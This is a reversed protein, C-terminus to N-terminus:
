NASSVQQLREIEDHNAPPAQFMRYDGLEHETTVIDKISDPLEDFTELRSGVLHMVAGTADMTFPPAAGQRVFSLHAPHCGSTDVSFDYIEWAQYRGRSPIEADIFLPAQFLRWGSGVLRSSIPMCPVTRRQAGQGQVVSPLIHGSGDRSYEIVQYDYKIPEVAKGQYHTIVQNTVPDRYFFIKRSLQVVKDKSQQVAVAADFGEVRAL